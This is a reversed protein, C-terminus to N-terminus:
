GLKQSKILYSEFGGEHIYIVAQCYLATCMTHLTLIHVLVVVRYLRIHTNLFMTLSWMLTYETCRDDKDIEPRRQIHLAALSEKVTRVSIGNGTMIHCIYKRKKSMKNTFMSTLLWWHPLSNIWIHYDKLLNYKM